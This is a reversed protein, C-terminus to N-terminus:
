GVSTPRFACNHASCSHDGMLYIIDIILIKTTIKIGTSM